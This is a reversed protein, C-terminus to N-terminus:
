LKVQQETRRLMVIIHHERIQTPAEATYEYGTECHTIKDNIRIDTGLPVALKVRGDLSAYPANQAVRTGATSGSRVGFHCRLAPIDPVDPYSFVPSTPLNYGPSADSRVIHFVDCTHNLMADFSM